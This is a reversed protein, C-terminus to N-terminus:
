PPLYYLLSNLKKSKMLVSSGSEDSLNINLVKGMEHCQIINTEYKWIVFLSVFYVPFLYNM